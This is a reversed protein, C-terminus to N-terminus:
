SLEKIYYKYFQATNFDLEGNPGLWGLSVKAVISEPWVKGDSFDNYSQIPPECIGCVDTELKNPYQDIFEQFEKISVKRYESM